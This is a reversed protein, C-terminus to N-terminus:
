LKYILWKRKLNAELFEVVTSFEAGNQPLQAPGLDTVRPKDGPRAIRGRRKAAFAAGEGM